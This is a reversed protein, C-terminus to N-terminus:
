LFLCGWLAGTAAKGASESVFVRAPPNPSTGPRSLFLYKPMLSCSAKWSKPTMAGAVCDRRVDSGSCGM